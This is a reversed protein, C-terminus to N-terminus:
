MSVVDFLGQFPSVLERMEPIIKHDVFTRTTFNSQKDALWLPNFWEYLSHYLGFTINTYSRVAGALEGPLLDDCM